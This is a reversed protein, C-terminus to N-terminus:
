GDISKISKRSELLHEIRQNAKGSLRTLEIPDEAEEIWQCVNEYNLNSVKGPEERKPKMGALDEFEISGNLWGRVTEIQWKRYAAIMGLMEDSLRRTFDGSRWRRISEGNIEQGSKITIQLAIRNDSRHEARELELWAALRAKYLGLDMLKGGFFSRPFRVLVRAPM